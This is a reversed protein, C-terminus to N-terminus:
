LHVRYTSALCTSRFSSDWKCVRLAFYDFCFSAQTVPVVIQLVVGRAGVPIRIPTLTVADFAYYLLSETGVPNAEEFSGMSGRDTSMFAGHDDLFQLVVRFIAAPLATTPSPPAEATYYSVSLELQQQGEDILPGQETLDASTILTPDSTSLNVNNNNPATFSCCSFIPNYTWGPTFSWPNSATPEGTLPGTTLPPAAPITPPAPTPPQTAAITQLTCSPDRILNTTGLFSYQCQIRASTM